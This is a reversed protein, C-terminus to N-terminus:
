GRLVADAVRAVQVMEEVDHVRVIHAGNLIAATVTAATGWIRKDPPAGDLATALFSKRSTGVVLPLKFKALRELKHLIEFSQEATKGFGIGPDILIKERHIGARRAEELSWSLGRDLSPWINDVPPLEQMTKPTGRVHMLLIPVDLRAAVKALNPDTRLGSVDNIISAGAEIAERAVDAKCTDISIPIGAKGELKKLVPIVRELEQELTVGESGPRTSEGGIDLIDAGAKQLALAHRAAKAPDLFDGGDSFSDPTVNVVGMVLTRAGLELTGHPLKLSFQERKHRKM